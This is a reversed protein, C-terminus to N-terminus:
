KTQNDDNFINSTDIHVRLNDIEMNRNYRDKIDLEIKYAETIMSELKRMIVNTDDDISFDLQVLKRITEKEEETGYEKITSIIENLIKLYNKVIKNKSETFHNTIMINVNNLIENVLDQKEVIASLSVLFPHLDKRFEIKLEDLTRVRANDNNKFEEIYSRNRNINNAIIQDLEDKLKNKKEEDTIFELLVTKITNIVLCLEDKLTDIKDKQCENLIDMMEHYNKAKEGNSKIEFLLENFDTVLKEYLAKPNRISISLENAENGINKSMDDLEKNYNTLLENVRAEVDVDGYYYKRHKKIKNILETIEDTKTVEGSKPMNDAPQNTIRNKNRVRKLILEENCLVEYKFYNNLYWWCDEYRIGAVLNDKAILIKKETDVIWPIETVKLWIEAGNSYDEGDSLITGSFISGTIKNLLLEVKNNGDDNQFVKFNILKKGQFEYIPYEKPNFPKEPSKNYHMYVGDITYTMKTKVLESSKESYADWLQWRNVFENEHSHLVNTPMWGFCIELCNTTENKYAVSLIDDWLKPCDTFRLIPRIAKDRDTLKCQKFEGTEADFYPALTLISNSSRLYFSQNNKYPLGTLKALDTTDHLANKAYPSLIEYQSPLDIIIKNLVEQIEKDRPPVEPYKKQDKYNYDEFEM